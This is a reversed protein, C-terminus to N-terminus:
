QTILLYVHNSIFFDADDLRRRIQNQLQQKHNKRHSKHPKEHAGGRNQAMNKVVFNRPPSAPSAQQAKSPQGTKARRSPRKKSM